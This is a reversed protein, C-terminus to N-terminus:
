VIDTEDIEEGYNTDHEEDDDDEVVGARVPAYSSGAGIGIMSKASEM